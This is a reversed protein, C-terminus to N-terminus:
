GLGLCLQSDGHPLDPCPQGTEQSTKQASSGTLADVARSSLLELITHTPFPASLSARKKAGQAGTGALPGPCAELPLSVEGTDGLHVPCPGVQKPLHAQNWFPLHNGLSGASTM